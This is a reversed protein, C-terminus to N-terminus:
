VRKPTAGTRALPVIVVEVHQGIASDDAADEFVVGCRYSAGPHPRKGEPVVFIAGRRM